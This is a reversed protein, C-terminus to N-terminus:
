LPLLRIYVWLCVHYASAAHVDDVNLQCKLDNQTVSGRAEM